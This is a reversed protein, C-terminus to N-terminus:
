PTRARIMAVISSITGNTDEDACAFKDWVSKAIAEREVKVQEQAYEVMEACSYNRCNNNARPKRLHYNLCKDMLEVSRPNPMTNTWPMTGQQGAGVLLMHSKDFGVNVTAFSLSKTQDERGVRSSGM